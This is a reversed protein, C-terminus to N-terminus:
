STQVPGSRTGIDVVRQLLQGAKALVPGAMPDKQLAEFPGEGFYLGDSVLFSIRVGAKPPPLRPKDWPGIRDVITQSAALLEKALGEVPNGSGEFVATKGSQNFYRVGGESFAALVDLGQQLPVEVIVGLLQKAPVQEGAARLRNFALVRVRGENAADAAIAQLAPKDPSEGLLVPWVGTNPNRFLGPEDCFLLNYLFNLHPEAYPQHLGQQPPTGGAAPGSSKSGFLKGFMGPVGGNGIFDAGAAIKGSGARRVACGM